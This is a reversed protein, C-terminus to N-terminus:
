PKRRFIRLRTKEVCSTGVSTPPYESFQDPTFFEQWRPYREEEIIFFQATSKWETDLEANWLGLRNLAVPDGGNLYSYGSNIQAPFIDVNPLYLLPAASLGGDWYVLSDDPIISTLHAGIQEHSRIVDVQCDPRGAGGSLMPSLILGLGLVASVYYVSFSPADPQLRRRRAFVYILLTVLLGALLGFATSSYKKAANITLDFRNSLIDQVTVFGPLIRMERVRPAPLRLLSAGIEEFSSFGMGTFIILFVPLLIAILWGSAQWNWSKISIVLLLIGAITFFAVYAQLCFVCYDGGLSAVSHMLALGWFLLFLFLSARFDTHSKWNAPRPWFLISVLSGALVVFHLRFAQFAALARSFVGVEPTWSSAGGGTDTIQAPITVLPVWTWLQLISPWYLIHFFLVVLLGSLLLWIGKLRHEWFAYLALLPLVPLMNQRAMIMVGALFGALALQWVPRKEGVSLALTWALLCAITSQTAGASYMKIVAPSLTLVFVAGAALWKGGLRRAAVWTGIVAMLGLFIALYRGTRLGPGFIWQVFGPILFALPAKNTWIGPDFPRYGGGVFLTGKLLYGGEDLNSVTTHAFLVAQALYLLLGLFAVADATWAPWTRRQLLNPQGM